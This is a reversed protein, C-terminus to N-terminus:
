HSRNRFSAQIIERSEPPLSHLTAAAEKLATARDGSAQVWFFDKSSQVTYGKENKTAQLGFFTIAASSKEFGKMDSRLTALSQDDAFLSVKLDLTKGGSKSDDLLFVDFVQSKPQRM